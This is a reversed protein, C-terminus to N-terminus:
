FPFVCKRQGPIKGQLGPFSPAFLEKGEVGGFGADAWSHLDWLTEMHLSERNSDHLQHQVSTSFSPQCFAADGRLLGWPPLPASFGGREYFTNCVM